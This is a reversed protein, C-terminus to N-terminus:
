KSGPKPLSNLLSRINFNHKWFDRLTLEADSNIEFCMQFLAKIISSRLTQFSRPIMSHILHIMNPPQFLITIFYFEKMLEDALGPPHTPANDMVRLCMLPLNNEQLYKKVNPAFVVHIWEIFCQM